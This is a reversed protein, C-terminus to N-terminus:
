FVFHKGDFDVDRIRNTCLNDECVDGKDCGSCSPGAIFPHRFLRLLNQMDLSVM